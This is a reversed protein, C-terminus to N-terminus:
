GIPLKRWGEREAKAVIAYFKSEGKFVTKMPLRPATAPPVAQQANTGSLLVGSLLALHGILKLQM